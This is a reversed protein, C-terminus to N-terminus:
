IIRINKMKCDLSLMPLNDVFEQQHRNCSMGAGIREYTHNWKCIRRLVIFYEQTEVRDEPWTLQKTCLLLAFLTGSFVGPTEADDYRITNGWNYRQENLLKPVVTMKQWWHSKKLKSIKGASIVVADGDFSM